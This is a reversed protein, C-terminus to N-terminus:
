RRAAEGLDDDGDGPPGEFRGGGDLRRKLDNLANLAELPTTSAVDFARLDAAIAALTEDTPTETANGGSADLGTAEPLTTQGDELGGNTAAPTGDSHDPLHDPVGNTARTEPHATKSLTGPVADDGDVLDRSRRVVPDPVGAMTAVEIGYSSSSAGPSVRHLFTVDDGDRAATFHLNFVGDREDALATLDHYHTAFLTTAGVEDHVFETTAWAIALGDATS